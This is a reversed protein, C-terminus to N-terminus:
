LRSQESHGAPIPKTTIDSSTIVDREEFEVIEIELLEYSEM